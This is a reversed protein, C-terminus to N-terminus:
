LSKITMHSRKRKTRYSYKIECVHDVFMLNQFITTPYFQMLGYRNRARRSRTPSTHTFSIICRSWLAWTALIWRLGRKKWIHHEQLPLLLIRNFPRFPQGSNANKLSLLLPRRTWLHSPRPLSPFTEGM